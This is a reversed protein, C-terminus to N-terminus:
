CHHVFELFSADERHMDSMVDDVRLRVGMARLRLVVRSLFFLMHIFVVHTTFLRILVFLLLGVARESARESRFAYQCRVLLQEVEAESVEAKKGLGPAAGKSSTQKRPTLGLGKKMKSLIGKSTSKVKGGSPAPQFLDLQYMPFEERAEVECSVSSHHSGAPHLAYPELSYRPSPLSPDLQEM